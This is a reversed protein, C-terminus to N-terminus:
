PAQDNGLALLAMQRADDTILRLHYLHWTAVVPPVHYRKMVARAIAVEDKSARAIERVGREPMLLMAGFAKARAVMPMHAWASSVVGTEAGVPMDMVYHGLATALRMADSMSGDENDLISVRNGDFACVACDWGGAGRCDSLDIGQTTLWPGLPPVAEDAWGFISRVDKAADYGARWAQESRPASPRRAQELLASVRHQPPRVARDTFARLVRPEAIPTSRLCSTLLSHELLAGSRRVSREVRERVDVLSPDELARRVPPAVMYAWANAPAGSGNALAGHLAPDVNRSAIAKSTERVCDRLATAVVHVDVVAAGRPEVFRLDRRPPKVTEHDWSVEALAGLRRVVINPLAAGLDAAPLAHREWYDHREEYWRDDDSETPTFPPGDLSARLWTAADPIDDSGVPAPFPEENLLAVGQEDLWRLIPLLYWEVHARVSRRQDNRTLCVEGAWIEITGWTAQLAPDIGAPPAPDDVLAIRVAFQKTEGFLRDYWM